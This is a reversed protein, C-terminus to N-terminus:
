HLTFDLHICTVPHGHQDTIKIDGKLPLKPIDKPIYAKANLIIDGANLPCSSKVVDSALITCLDLDRKIKIMNMLTLNISAKGGTVDSLLHGGIQVNIDEGTRPIPPTISVSGQYGKLMHSDPSGCLSWIDGHDENTM